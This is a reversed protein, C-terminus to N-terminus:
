KQTCVATTGTLSCYFTGQTIHHYRAPVGGKFQLTCDENPVNDFIGTNETISVRERWGSACTIELSAGPPLESTVIINMRGPADEVPLHHVDEQKCGDLDCLWVGAENIVGSRRIFDVTCSGDPVDPFAAVGAKVVAKKTTDGCELVVAIVKVDKIKLELPASFATAAFLIPLM